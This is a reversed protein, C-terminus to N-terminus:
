LNKLIQLQQDLHLKLFSWQWISKQVESMLFDGYIGGGGGQVFAQMIVSLKKPDRPSRGSLMDKTSIVMYGFITGLMLTSALMSAGILKSEDPGYSDMERRLIKKYLSVAFNKINCLLVILKV